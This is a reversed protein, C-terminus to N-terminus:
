PVGNRGLCRSDWPECPDGPLGYGSSCFGHFFLQAEPTFLRSVDPPRGSNGDDDDDTPDRFASGLSKHWLWVDIMTKALEALYDPAFFFYEPPPKSCPPFAALTAERAQEAVSVDGPRVVWYIAFGADYMIKTGPVRRLPPQEEEGDVEVFRTANAYRRSWPMLVAPRRADAFIDALAEGHQLTSSPRPPVPALRMQAHRRAKPDAITLTLTQLAMSPRIVAQFIM